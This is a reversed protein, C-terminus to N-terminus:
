KRLRRRQTAIRDDVQLATIPTPPPEVGIGESRHLVVPPLAPGGLTPVLLEDLWNDAWTQTTAVEGSDIQGVPDVVGEAVGPLYMRGRGRRGAASTRKRILWSCNQPLPAASIGGAVSARTSEYIAPPGGDQGVYLTVVELRYDDAVRGMLMAAFADFLQDAADAYNSGAADLDHGCTVVIPEADDTLSFEYVAQGFGQPIILAM